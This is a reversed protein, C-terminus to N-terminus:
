RPPTVRSGNVGSGAGAVGEVLAAGLVVEPEDVVLPVGLEDVEPEDVGAGAVVGLGDVGAVGFVTYL